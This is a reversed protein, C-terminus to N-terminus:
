ANRFVSSFIIVIIALLILSFILMAMQFAILQYGRLLQYVERVFTWDSPWARHAFINIVWSAAVAIAFGPVPYGALLQVFWKILPAVEIFSHTDASTFAFFSIVFASLSFFLASFTQVM